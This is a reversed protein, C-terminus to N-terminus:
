DDSFHKLMERYSSFVRARSVFGLYKGNQLVPLNYRGSESFQRAVAEMPDSTQITWEPTIMLDRIKTSDYMEQRFMIHRIDDLKVIGELNNQEDLVPYINRHSKTIVQVLDRLTSNSRVPIFDTEILESVKMMLLINRDKHHTMLEGRKALQLTYVSNKVFTRTTGYSITSALMLPFFLEYGGTIEAILFIATLPAHVVGAIMGAMGVLAMNSVSVDIGVENLLLGFLLGTNAGIFLSPAFIGGIGGAAFTLTTAIVKFGIILLIYLAALLFTSNWSEFFTGELLHQFEGRLGQNVVEYGEGYLSPFFIIIIGLLGGALLLKKLPSDFKEFLSTIYIYSRTFYVSLLGVVVGLILYWHIQGMKFSETVQFSYLVNQGLFLYSTLAATASSILLPIVAWMTMDLMIVELAFVIGAIPAKFIASLAGACACSILLAIEKYNLKLVRGLNAGIAGGTAVTPGELGVSGGFGVTLASTIISSYLNHSRIIGNNKSIAFLVGPIGHGVPRKNLYKIYLVTLAIGVIPLIFIYYMSFEGQFGNELAERIFHVLNKIIVAALGVGLGVFVALIYLFSHGKLYRIKFNNLKSIFDKKPMFSLILM